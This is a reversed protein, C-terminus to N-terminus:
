WVMPFFTFVVAVDTYRIESYKIISSVNTGEFIIGGWTITTDGNVDYFLEGIVVKNDKEGEIRLNGKVILSQGL